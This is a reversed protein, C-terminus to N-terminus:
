ADDCRGRHSHEEVVGSITRMRVAAALTEDGADRVTPGAARGPPGQGRFAYRFTMRGRVTGHRTEVTADVVPRGVGM